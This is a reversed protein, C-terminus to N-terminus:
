SLQINITNGKTIKTGPEISQKVVNGIGTFSVKLGMSELLYIADKLSMGKLDPVMGSEVTTETLKAKSGDWAASIWNGGTANAQIGFFKYISSIDGATAKQINPINNEVVPQENLAPHMKLSLSYVKDAVEKFISGAVV